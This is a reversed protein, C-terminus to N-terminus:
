GLANKTVPMWVRQWIDFSAHHTPTGFFDPLFFTIIQRSPWAWDRVQQL